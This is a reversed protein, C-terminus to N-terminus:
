NNSFYYGEQCDCKPPIAKPICESCSIENSCTICKDLCRTCNSGDLYFGESCM